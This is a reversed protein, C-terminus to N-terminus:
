RLVAAVTRRSRGVTTLTLFSFGRRDAPSKLQPFDMFCRVVLYKAIVKLTSTPLLENASACVPAPAGPPEGPVEAPCSPADLPVVPVFEPSPDVVPMCPVVPVLTEPEILLLCPVPLVGPVDGPPGFLLVLRGAFYFPAYTARLRVAVRRLATAARHRVGFTPPILSAGHVHSSPWSTSLM